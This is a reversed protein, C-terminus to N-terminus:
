KKTSRLMPASAPVSAPSAPHSDIPSFLAKAMTPMPANAGNITRATQLSHTSVSEWHSQVMLSTAAPPQATKM